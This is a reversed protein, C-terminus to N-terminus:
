APEPHQGWRALVAWETPTPQNEALGTRWVTLTTRYVRRCTPCVDLRAQKVWGADFAVSDFHHKAAAVLEAMQDIDTTHITAILTM